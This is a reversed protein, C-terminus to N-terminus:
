ARGGGCGDIHNEWMDQAGFRALDILSMDNQVPHEKVAYFVEKGMTEFHRSSLCDFIFDGPNDGLVLIKTSIYVQHAIKAM